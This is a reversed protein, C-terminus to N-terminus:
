WGRVQNPDYGYGSSFPGYAAPGYVGLQKDQERRAKEERSRKYIDGFTGFADGIGQQTAESKALDINSRMSEGAQRAATTMDLGSQALQFLNLKASQDAQRLSAGAAQARREVELGSKLYAEGLDRRQNAETSGFSQGSRALAFKLQRQAKANQKDLDTSLYGRTADILQAIEAERAPNSYIREIASQTQAVQARRQDEARQAERQARNSGGSM